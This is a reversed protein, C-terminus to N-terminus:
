NGQADLTREIDAILERDYKQEAIIERQKKVEGKDNGVEEFERAKLEKRYSAKSTYNKGDAQSVFSEVSDTTNVQPAGNKRWYALNEKFKKSQPKNEKIVKKFWSTLPLFKLTYYDKIAKVFAKRRIVVMRKKDELSRVRMEDEIKM